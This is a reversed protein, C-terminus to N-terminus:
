GGSGYFRKKPKNTVEDEAEEEENIDSELEIMWTQRVYILAATVTDPLDDSEDSGDFKCKACEDIV